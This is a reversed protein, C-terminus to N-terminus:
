CSPRAPLAPSLVNAGVVARCPVVVPRPKLRRPVVVKDTTECHTGRGDQCGMVMSEGIVVNRLTRNARAPNDVTVSYTITVSEGAALAGKWSVDPNTFNVSGASAHVDHDYHADNLVDSLDDKFAANPEEVGGQNRVTIKYEVKGGPRVVAPSATKSIVVDPLPVSFSVVQALYTDGKTSFTLDASTSGAPVVSKPIVFDKADVSMNNPFNPDVTGNAYSDFFKTTGAAPYDPNAILTNNVAFRSGSVNFDGEYATVGARIAGVAGVQFGSIKTTMPPDNSRQLAHGEYVYVARLQHTNPATGANPYKYVVTMAWGGICGYGTPAWLDGVTINVPTGTPVASLESKIDAEATYYHPGSETAPTSVAGTPSITQVPQAGVKLKVQSTLPDGAPLIANQPASADCRTLGAKGLQYRGTNGAWDLHAFAVTAGAPITLQSTSSDLTGVKPDANVYQMNFDNNNGPGLREMAPICQPSPKVVPRSVAPRSGLVLPPCGLVTNGITVFDGYIKGSYVQEFPKVVNAQSTGAVAVVGCAVLAGAVGM